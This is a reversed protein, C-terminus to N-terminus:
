LSTPYLFVRNYIVLCDRRDWREMDRQKKKGRCLLFGSVVLCGEHDWPGRWLSAGSNM